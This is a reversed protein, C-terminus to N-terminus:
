EQVECSLVWKWRVMAVVGSGSNSIGSSLMGSTAWAVDGRHSFLSVVSVGCDSAFVSVISVLRHTWKVDGGGGM